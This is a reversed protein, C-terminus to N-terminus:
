NLPPAYLIGGHLWLLNLGRPIGLRSRVGLHREFMEGYHGTATIARVAWADDLGIMRGLGGDVGVLARVDPNQSNLAERLTSSSVGLEEANVLMHRTWRVINFWALDDARVVPALPEKSMMDPLITADAPKALKLKEAYLASQDTTMADCAGGELGKLVEASNPFVKETYTMSNTRFFDALNRRSTTGDQVCISAGTLELATTVGPKRMVMLGQGDHYMIGAFLLGMSAEREMSWTSNRSLVDIRKERLAPFRETANLPVYNVKAPDNLVAAAIARCFDVDFGSWQGQANRESFGFLGTSVGCNLAGRAKVDELTGAKAPLAALGVSLALGALAARFLRKM